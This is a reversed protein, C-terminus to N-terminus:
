AAAETKRGNREELVRKYDHPMVKVFKPLMSDWNEIVRKANVSGTQELHEQILDRLGRLTERRWRRM